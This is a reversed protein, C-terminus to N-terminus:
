NVRKGDADMTAVAGLNLPELQPLIAQRDGVLVVRLQGADLWKRTAAHVGEATLAQIRAPLNLYYDPPQEYLFLGGITGATGACTEFLAPLGRIYSEKAAALEEPTIPAALMGEIEALTERVAGGSADAQVMSGAMMPAPGRRDPMFGFAGYTWGKDERLNMNLRSSFLGGFVLLMTNLEEYAPDARTIFPQAVLMATQTAGPKDVVVVREPISSAPGPRPAEKATGRWAGFARHALRQAEDRTLDGALVLASNAPAFYQRYFLVLEDRTVAKLSEERGLAIHGYPHGEGYVVPTGVRIATQFPNERQQLLQTLRQSRVREIETAPFSPATAVDALVALFAEASQKLARGTINTGDENAGTTLTAGIEELERAIGLADRAATGEDLMAATFGALGPRAAPDGASGARVVLRAAVIPLQHSEVLYVPLGNPLTFSVAAPLTAAPVPGPAPKEARWPERDVFSAEVPPPPAVQPPEPPILREGPVGHIVVRRDKALQERAIAQVAAPTVKAYRALDENIWGPNQLFQNYQNMRDAVGGFSGVNELQTVISSWIANRAAAVEEATPGGDALRALEADIAAELEDATHGPKAVAQIQFVSGLQLSQQFATVSQAIQQEYVLAKYLRSAKGGALIRATVEAEADGPQFIPATIWALYVKPLEVQDTVVQRRESTIPPTVAAIPPVPEGRPISAFYKEVLQKAQAVDIDGVICLSANNPAYYRQFFARVDELKAAQVDEHSGIVNAYYPHEKPFLTHWMAEEVLGYPQNEVAQRRENRVVEQQRGLTSADVRDLLFGMRDSEMWLALELQNSPVDELYNTRDFDTSGNIMTAGAAELYAFYRDEPVHASAQFMLHEFLHAFGTRGPEENAPGVHYWLNVGVIPLRRDQRLIVELGNPLTYKEYDLQVQPAVAAPAATEQAATPAALVLPGAVAALLVLAAGLARAGWHRRRSRSRDLSM